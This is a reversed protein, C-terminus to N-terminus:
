KTSKHNGPKSRESRRAVGAQGTYLEDISTRPDQLYPGIQGTSSMSKVLTTWHHKLQKNQQM